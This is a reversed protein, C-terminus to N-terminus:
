RLVKNLLPKRELLMNLGQAASELAFYGKGLPFAASSRANTLIVQNAVCAHGREAEGCRLDDDFSRPVESVWNRFGQREIDDMDDLGLWRRSLRGDFPQEERSQRNIGCLLDSCDDIIVASSPGDFLEVLSELRAASVFAAFELCKM